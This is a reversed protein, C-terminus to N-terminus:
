MLVALMLYHEEGDNMLKTDGLLDSARTTSLTANFKNSVFLVVFECLL